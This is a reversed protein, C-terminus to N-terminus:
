FRWREPLILRYGEFESVDHTRSLSAQLCSQVSAIVSCGEICRPLRDRKPCQKCPSKCLEGVAPDFAARHPHNM